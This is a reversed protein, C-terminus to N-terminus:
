GSALALLHRLTTGAIDPFLAEDTRGVDSRGVDLGSSLASDDTRSISRNVFPFNDDTTVTQWQLLRIYGDSRTVWGMRVMGTVMLLRRYGLRLGGIGNPRFCRSDSGCCRSHQKRKGRMFDEQDSVM